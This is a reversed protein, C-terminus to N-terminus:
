PAKSAETPWSLYVVTGERVGPTGFNPHSVLVLGGDTEVHYFWNQGAFVTTKIRGELIKHQADVFLIREPRVAVARGRPDRLLNTKGLFAAVFESAPHEYVAFPTGVQVIRGAHMIAVRDSLTLAETQDHTVMIATIGLSRQLQRLEFQMEERLKADLNSLPEDFLLLDPEIVLARALAVRQQQGGSLERPYRDALGGLAVMDLIRKVRRARDGQPVNRVELGFSVNGRVDLHPFLAYSQFVIGINRRNPPVGRMDRGGILVNGTSPEVFGAIMHLTTTKGCGSPGLLTLFEGRAVDLDIGEVATISGFAKSLGKLQVFEVSQAMGMEGTPVPSSRLKGRDV